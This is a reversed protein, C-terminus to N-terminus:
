AGGNRREVYRWPDIDGRLSARVVSPRDTGLVKSRPLAWSSRDGDGSSRPTPGTVDMFAATYGAETALQRDRSSVTAPTGYPYALVTVSRGIQQEIEERSETLQRRSEGSELASLRPHTLSHSGISWGAAALERVHDWTMFPRTPEYSTDPAAGSVLDAAVFATAPVGAEALMPAATELVDVFGDDFTVAISRPPLEVRGRHWSVVDDLGVPHHDARIIAIHARLQAPTVSWEDPPETCVGHYCLVRPAEAGGHDPLFRGVTAVGQRLTSKVSSRISRTASRSM